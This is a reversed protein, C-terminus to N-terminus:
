TKAHLPSSSKLRRERGVPLRNTAQFIHVAAKDIARTTATLGM